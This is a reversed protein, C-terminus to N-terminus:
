QRVSVGSSRLDFLLRLQTTNIPFLVILYAGMLM